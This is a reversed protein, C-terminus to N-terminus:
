YTTFHLPSMLTKYGEHFLVDIVIFKNWVESIYDRDDLGMIISIFNWTEYVYCVYNLWLLHRCNNSYERVGTYM